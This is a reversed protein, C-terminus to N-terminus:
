PPTVEHGVADENPENQGLDSSARDAAEAPRTSVRRRASRSRSREVWVRLMLGVAAWMGVTEENPYWHRGTWSGVLQAFVLAFTIGGTAVFLPHRSDTFLILSCALVVGYLLLMPLMGLWGNDLLWEIYANHPHPFTRDIQAVAAHAGSRDYGLRGFGVVPSSWVKSLMIPWVKLRGASLAETDVAQGDATDSDASSIGQLAREGVGPAVALVLSLAVPALLLPVRWRLVGLVLGVCIWALYGGRGATLAMAFGVFGALGLLGLSMWRSRFFPRISLIAWSGGALMVSLGTRFFGTERDLRRMAHTGLSAGALADRLPMWKLVLISLVVYTALVGAAAVLWRKRTRAGDYFMVAPVLYKLPNVFYEGVLDSLGIHVPGPQVFLRVFSGCILVVYVTLLLGAFAPLDWRLGERRRGALWAPVTALLLFNWLNLGPIGLMARPMDPNYNIAMLLVLGAAAPFWDIWAYLALVLTGLYVIYIRM